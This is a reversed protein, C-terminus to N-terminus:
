GADDVLGYNLLGNRDNSYRLVVVLSELSINTLVKVEQVKDAVDGFSEDCDSVDAYAEDANYLNTAKILRLSLKSVNCIKVVTLRVQALELLHSAPSVELVEKAM